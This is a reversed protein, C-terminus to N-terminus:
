VVGFVLMRELEALDGGAAVDDGAFEPAAVDRPV